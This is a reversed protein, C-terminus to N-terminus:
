EYFAFVSDSLFTKKEGSRNSLHEKEATAQLSRHHFSFVKLEWHNIAILKEHL